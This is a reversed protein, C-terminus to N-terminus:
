ESKEEIKMKEHDWYVPIVGTAGYRNKAVILEAKENKESEEESYYSERFPFIIVDPFQELNRVDSLIPRHYSKMEHFPPLADPRPLYSTVIVPIHESHALAKLARIDWGPRRILHLYDVFVAACNGISRLQSRIITADVSWLNCYLSEFYLTELTPLEGRQRRILSLIQGKSMELEILLVRKGAAALNGAFQIALSTKGMGPRAAILTLSGRPLGGGLMDDLSPIGTPIRDIGDKLIDNSKKDLEM